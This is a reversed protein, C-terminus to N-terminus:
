KTFVQRLAQGAYGGFGAALGGILGTLLIQLMGSLGGFLDAIQESLIGDNRQWYFFAMGGWLLIGALFSVGFSWRKVGILCVTAAVVAISWWPLWMGALFGLAMIFLVPIVFNRM